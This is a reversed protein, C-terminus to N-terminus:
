HHQVPNRSMYVASINDCYVITAQEIPRHLESLLQRVWITDAVAHAVVRYEAEASSRSVTVQRKSSWSILNNGLFVCFRSTSRRTDPCGAWDADSYATLSHPTSKNIHLGHDLTGKLYRLVRKVHNYHPLRPDHMHLCAQQVVFSIEPRTITLYQLTETLSCYLTPDHFPQGDASLKFSTDVPTRSSQCDLMGARNLLDLTYQCQSLSLGSSDRLVAIGSFHHLTGLHTMSFESRLLTIIHDLLTQSSASLIIDDVYLLLYATESNHHYVFLSTDSLSSTFGIM